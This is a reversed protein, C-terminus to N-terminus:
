GKDVFGAARAARVEALLDKFVCALHLRAESHEAATHNCFSRCEGIFNDAWSEASAEGEERKRLLMERVSSPRDTM